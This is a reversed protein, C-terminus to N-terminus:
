RIRLGRVLSPNWEQWPPVSKEEEENLLADFLGDSEEETIETAFPSINENQTNGSQVISGLQACSVLFVTSLVLFAYRFM